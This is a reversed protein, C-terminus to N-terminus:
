IRLPPAAPLKVWGASGRSGEDDVSEDVRETPATRPGAAEGASRRTDPHRSEDAVLNVPSLSASRCLSVCGYADILGVRGALRAKLTHVCRTRRHPWASGGCSRGAAPAMGGPDRERASWSTLSPSGQPQPDFPCPSRLQSPAVAPRRRRHQAPAAPCQLDREAASQDGAPAQDRSDYRPM